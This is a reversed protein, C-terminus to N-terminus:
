FIFGHVEVTMGAFRTDLRKQNEHIGPPAPKLRLSIRGEASDGGQGSHRGFPSFM